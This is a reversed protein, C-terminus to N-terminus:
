ADGFTSRIKWDTIGDELNRTAERLYGYIIGNAHQVTIRGHRDNLFDKWTEPEIPYSFTTNILYNTQLDFTKEITLNDNVIFQCTPQYGFTGVTNSETTNVVVLRDGANMFMTVSGECVSFGNEVYIDGQEFFGATQLVTYWDSIAGFNDGFPIVQDYATSAAPYTALYFTGSQAFYNTANTVIKVTVDYIASVPATYSTCQTNTMSDFIFATNDVAMNNNPDTIEIPFDVFDAYIGSPTFVPNTIITSTPVLTTQIQSEADNIGEGLFLFISNPIAGYFRNLVEDNKLRFNFNQFAPTVPNPNTLTVNDGDLVVMAVKGYNSENLTGGTAVPLCDQISNTDTVLTQLRLDLIAESNCNGGLHYEEKDWSFLQIPEYYDHDQQVESSGIILKQYYSEQESSQTVTSPSEINLVNTSGIFYSPKEIRFIPRGNNQYEVGFEINYVKYTDTLLEEFSIYPYAVGGGKAIEEFDFLTPNRNLTPQLPDSETAFFDSEFDMEGDSMFAILFKFADYLRVGERDASTPTQVGTEYESFECDTQITTYATIDVDNKSRPVNLFAKIEKNNAILTLYGADIVEISVECIDPRWEATNLFLNANYTNGCGDGIQIPIITCAGSIFQNRLYTYDQGYFVLTGNWEELFGNIDKAFYVRHQLERLGRPEQQISFSTSTISLM